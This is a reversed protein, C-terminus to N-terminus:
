TSLLTDRAPLKPRAPPPAARPAGLELAVYFDNKGRRVLLAISSETRADVLRSFEEVSAIPKRNVGHIVDGVKLGAREAAADAQVVALGYPLRISKLASHPLERLSLGPTTVLRLEDPGAQGCAAALLALLVLAKAV